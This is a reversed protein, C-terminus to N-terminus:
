ELNRRNIFTQPFKKNEEPLKVKQPAPPYFTENFVHAPVEGDPGVMVPPIQQAERIQARLLERDDESEYVNPHPPKIPYGKERFEKVDKATITTAEKISKIFDEDDEKKRPEESQEPRGFSNGYLILNLIGRDYRRNLDELEMRDYSNFCDDMWRRISKEEEKTYQYFNEHITPMEVSTENFKAANKEAEEVRQKELLDDLRDQADELAGEMTERGVEEFHMNNKELDQAEFLLDQLRAQFDKNKSPVGRRDWGEKHSLKFAKKLFKSVSKM